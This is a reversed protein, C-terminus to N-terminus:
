KKEAEKECVNETYNTLLCETATNIRIEPKSKNQRDVHLNFNYVYLM